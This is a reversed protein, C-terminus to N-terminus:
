RTRDFILMGTKRANFECLRFIFSIICVWDIEMNDLGEARTDTKWGGSGVGAAQGAGVAAEALGSLDMNLTANAAVTGVSVAGSSDSQAGPSPGYMPNTTAISHQRPQHWPPPAFTFMGDNTMGGTAETSMQPGAAPPSASAISAAGIHNAASGFQVDSPPAAPASPSRSSTRYSQEPPTAGLDSSGTLVYGGPLIRGHKEANKQELISPVPRPGARGEMVTPARIKRHRQYMEMRRKLESLIIRSKHGPNMGGPLEFVYDICMWVRDRHQYHNPASYIEGLILLATHYQQFAGSYWAWPRTKEQTEVAIAHELQALGSSLLIQRLREPMIRDANSSYRHLIMINMKYNLARYTLLAMFQLPIKDNIMPLYKKETADWFHKVKGLLATLTSKKAEVRPREHWILRHMENCEFRMRSFTMDTWREADEIPPHSSELDKDDVNLPFKTDFDEARIQPRPGTAECTRLDLFCLQHWVM